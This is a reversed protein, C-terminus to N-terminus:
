LGPTHGVRMWPKEGLPSNLYSVTRELIRRAAGRLRPDNEYGMQALTAAAAERFIGRTRRVLDDDRTKTGLEFTFAPDNDEALLRFLLRRATVLPPSDPTWGCEILRRVAPITGINAFDASHRSPLSLISNNWMGDRTQTVALKIAPRHSYPLWDIERSGPESLRAVETLTRYRIPASAHELLWSVPFSLPEPTPAPTTITPPLEAPTGPATMFPPRYTPPLGEFAAPAHAASLASSYCTKLRASPALM